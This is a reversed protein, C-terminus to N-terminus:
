DILAKILAQGQVASLLLLRQHPVVGAAPASHQITPGPAM